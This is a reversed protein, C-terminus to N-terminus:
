LNMEKEGFAVSERLKDERLQLNQLQKELQQRTVKHLVIDIQEFLEETEAKNLFLGSDRVDITYFNNYETVEIKM